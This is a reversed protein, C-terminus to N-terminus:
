KRKVKKKTTTKKTESTDKSPLSDSTRAGKFAAKKAKRSSSQIYFSCTEKEKLDTAVVVLKEGSEIAAYVEKKGKKVKCRTTGILVEESKAEGIKEQRLISEGGIEQTYVKLINFKVGLRLPSDKGGKIIIEKAEVKKSKHIHLVPLQVPLAQLIMYDVTSVICDRCDLVAEHSLLKKDISFIDTDTKYSFGTPKIRFQTLVTGDEVSVISLDLDFSFHKSYVIKPILEKAGKTKKATASKSRTTAKNKGVFKKVTISDRTLKINSVKSELIYDVGKMSGAALDIGKNRKAIKKRRKEIEEIDNRNILNVYGDCNSITEKLAGEIISSLSYLNDTAKVKPKAISISYNQGSSLNTMLLLGLLIMLYKYTTTM